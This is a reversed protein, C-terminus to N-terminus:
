TRVEYVTATKSSKRSKLSRPGCRVRDHLVADILGNNVFLPPTQAFFRLVQATTVPEKRPGRYGGIFRVLAERFSTEPDPVKSWDIRADEQAKTM